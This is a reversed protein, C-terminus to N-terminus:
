IYRVARVGRDKDGNGAHTVVNLGYLGAEHFDAVDEHHVFSVPFARSLGNAFQLETACTRQGIRQRPQSGRHNSM